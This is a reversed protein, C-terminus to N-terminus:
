LNDKLWNSAKESFGIWSTTGALETVLLEDNNDMYQYLYNVIDKATSDSKIIWCSDLNHWWPKFEKIADILSSYDQGPTHLDYSILYTKM